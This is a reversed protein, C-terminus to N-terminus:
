LVVSAFCGAAAANLDSHQHESSYFGQLEWNGIPGFAKYLASLGELRPRLIRLGVPLTRPSLMWEGLGRRGSCVRGPERYAM